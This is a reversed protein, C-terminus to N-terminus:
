YQAQDFQRMALRWRLDECRRPRLREFTEPSEFTWMGVRERGFSGLTKYGRREVGWHLQYRFLIDLM